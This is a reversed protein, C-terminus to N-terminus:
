KEFQSYFDAEYTGGLPIETEGIYIIKNRVFDVRAFPVIFSRHVRAFSQEPLKEMMEKLTMRVVLTDADERHIKLYNDLGEIYLINAPWVRVMGYNAKLMLPPLDTYHGHRAQHLEGAKEIAQIFRKYTFPKLLYDVANLNYSEVAYETYSTTFIVMLDDPIARTFEIGTMAPMRIDLFLIDVPHEELFRRAAGTQTFTAKLDLIGSRGAFTEIVELAPREDDLAIATLM